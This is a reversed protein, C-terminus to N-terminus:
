PSAPGVAKRMADICALPFRMRKEFSGGWQDTRTNLTPSMFQHLLWGHGGHLTVMGFGCQKAFLAAEAHKRITREIIEETM